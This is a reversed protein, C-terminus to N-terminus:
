KNKMKVPPRKESKVEHVEGLIDVVHKTIKCLNQIGITDAFYSNDHLIFNMAAKNRNFGKYYAFVNECKIDDKDKNVAHFPIGKKSELRVLDNPYLSFKFEYDATMEIWQEEPKGSKVAKNPLTGRYVDLAYVPVGYYKGGKCFVDTRVMSGNKANGRGTDGPASAKQDILVKKVLPGNSGDAKPKYFPEAFAKKADGGYEVLRKRM